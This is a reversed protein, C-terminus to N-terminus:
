REMMRMRRRRLVPVSVLMTLLKVTVAAPILYYVLRYLIEFSSLRFAYYAWTLVFLYAITAWFSGSYRRWMRHAGAYFLALLVARIFLEIWDGGLVSQAVIGFLFGMGSGAADMVEDKYWTSPEWKYFPLIQSPVLRYLDVFNIYAPLPPLSGEAKRMYVDYANGYVIMFETPSGWAARSDAALGSRGVDRLLGFGLFGVLLLGGAAFATWVRIPKVILHYGVMFTLVLVVTATRSEMATVTLAAEAALWLLLLWRWWVQRWHSLLVIVLCQKLTLLIMQLMSTIQQLFYPLRLYGVTGGEYLSVTPGLYADLVFFYGRLILVLTLIVLLMAPPPQEFRRMSFFRKGRVFLYVIVFTGLLLVHRWAFGGFQQPTPAWVFMRYDGTNLSEMGAMAFQLLPIVTYITTALVFFTAAEFIPLHGDRRTLVYLYLFAFAIV